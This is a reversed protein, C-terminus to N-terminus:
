NSHVKGTLSNVVYRFGGAVITTQPCKEAANKIHKTAEAIASATTGAPTVNDMLGASYAPSSVGQCAVDNAFIKKLGGCLGPGVSNATGKLKNTGNRVEREM